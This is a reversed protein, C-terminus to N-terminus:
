YFWDIMKAARYGLERNRKIKDQNFDLGSTSLGPTPFLLRVPINQQEAILAGIIMDTDWVEDLLIGLVAMLQQVTNEVKLSHKERLPGTLIVDVSTAGMSIAREIPITHRIGGDTWLSGEIEVPRFFVPYSASASVAKVIDASDEVWYRIEGDSLSACGVSLRKGSTSLKAADLSGEVLRELPTSDYFSLEGLASRLMSVKDRKFLRKKMRPHNLKFIRRDNVTNWVDVLGKSAEKEEGAKFQSIFSGNLAGVSIGAIIDYTVELDGLIHELAGVQFAGKSGGGSLVLARM